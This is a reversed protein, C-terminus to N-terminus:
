CRRALSALPPASPACARWGWAGVRGVFPLPKPGAAPRPAALADQARKLVASVPASAGEVTAEGAVAAGRLVLAAGTTDLATVGSLDLRRAGQAAKLLPEWLGGVQRTTLAGRLRLTDDQRDFGAQEAQDTM